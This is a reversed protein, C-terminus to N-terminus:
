NHIGVQANCWALSRSQNRTCCCSPIGRPTCFALQCDGFSTSDMWFDISRAAYGCRMALAYVM